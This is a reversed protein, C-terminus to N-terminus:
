RTKLLEKMITKKDLMERAMDYGRALDDRLKLVDERIVEYQEMLASGSAPSRESKASSNENVPRSSGKAVSQLFKEKKTM